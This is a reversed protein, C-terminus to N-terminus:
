VYRYGVWKLTTYMIDSGNGYISKLIVYGEWPFTKLENSVKM